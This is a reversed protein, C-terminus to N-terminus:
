NCGTQLFQLPDHGPCGDDVRGEDITIRRNSRCRWRQGDLDFAPAGIQDKLVM